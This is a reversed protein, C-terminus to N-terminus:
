LIILPEADAEEEGGADGPGGGSGPEFMALMREVLVRTMVHPTLVGAERDLDLAAALASEAGRGDGTEWLMLAIEELSRKLDLRKEPTYIGAEVESAYAERREREQGPSLVLPGYSIEVLREIYPEFELVPLQAEMFPYDILDNVARNMDVTKLHETRGIRDYILPRKPLPVSGASLIYEAYDEPLAQGLRHSRDAAEALFYRVAEVPVGTLRTDPDAEHERVIRRLEGPGLRIFKFVALGATHGALFLATDFGSPRAPLAMIGERLGNGDYHGLWGRATREEPRRLMTEARPRVADDATLGAQELRYVARKVSKLVRNDVCDARLRYLFALVAPERAGSVAEIVEAEYGPVDQVAATFLSGAEETDLGALVRSAAAEVKERVEPPLQVPRKNKKNKSMKRM